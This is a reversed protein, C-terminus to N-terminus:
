DVLLSTLYSLVFTVDVNFMEREALDLQILTAHRIMSCRDDSMQDISDATNKEKIPLVRYGLDHFLQQPTWVLGCELDVALVNEDGFLWRVSFLQVSCEIHFPHPIPIDLLQRIIRM